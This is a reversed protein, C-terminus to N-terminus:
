APSFSAKDEEGYGEPFFNNTWHADLTDVTGLEKNVWQCKMIDFSYTTEGVTIGHEVAHGLQAFADMDWQAVDDSSLNGYMAYISAGSKILDAYRTLSHEVNQALGSMSEILGEGEHDAYDDHVNFENSQGASEPDSFVQDYVYSYGLDSHDNDLAFMHSAATQQALTQSIPKTM